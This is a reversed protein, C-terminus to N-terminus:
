KVTLNFVSQGERGNPFIVDVAVSDQGTYGPNSVYTLNSGRTPRSNCHNRPNAAAFNTYGEGKQVFVAGHEPNKMVRVVTEGISSCDPNLASYHALRLPLGSVAVPSITGSRTTQCGAVTAVSALVLLTRFSMTTM